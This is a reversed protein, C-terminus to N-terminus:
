DPMSFDEDFTRIRWTACFYVNMRDSSSERWIHLPKIFKWHVGGSKCFRDIKCVFYPVGGKQMTWKMLLIRSEDCYTSLNAKRIKRLDASAQIPGLSWLMQTPAQPNPIQGSLVSNLLSLISVSWIMRWHVTCEMDFQEIISGDVLPQPWLVKLTTLSMIGECTRIRDATCFM